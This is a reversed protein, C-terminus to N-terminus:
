SPGVVQAFDGMRVLKTIVDTNQRPRLCAGSVPGNKRLGTDLKGSDEWVLFCM